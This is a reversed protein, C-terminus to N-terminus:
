FLNQGIWFGAEAAFDLGGYVYGVAASLPGDIIGTLVIIVLLIMGYREYRMLKYYAEDSLLSFLVKSGDMPPIPIINFVAFATSLYATRVVIYQVYFSVTGDGMVSALVGYIFLMLVALAINSLPGAAATIMMGRKPNKFRRMDVPVPKAWGFGFVAMMILGTVDVHKIPNFSLRGMDRATTDGMRLAAYGHCTEHVTVCLLVPIVSLLIDTLVTWDLNKLVNIM